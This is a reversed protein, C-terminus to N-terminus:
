GLMIWFRLLIYGLICNLVGFILIAAFIAMMFRNLLDSDLLNGTLNLVGRLIDTMNSM